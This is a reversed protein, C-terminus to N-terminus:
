APPFLPDRQEAAGPDIRELPAGQWAGVVEEFFREPWENLLERKVLSALYRSVPLQAAEAERRIREAVEDPVYFHLQPM